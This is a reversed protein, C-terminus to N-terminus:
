GTAPKAIVVTRALRLTTRQIFERWLDGPQPAFVAAPAAPFIHWAGVGVEAELQGPGWGAYGSYVRFPATAGSPEELFRKLIDPSNSVYIEGFVLRSSEPQEPSRVLMIIERRSVPGGEYLPDDREKLDAVEPLVRSLKARTERNVIVGMAGQESYDILLIVSEAFNPDRLDNSAVLLKGKALLNERSHQAQILAAAGRQAPSSPDPGPLPSLTIALGSALSILLVAVPVRWRSRPYSDGVMSLAGASSSM